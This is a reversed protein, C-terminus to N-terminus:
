ENIEEVGQTLLPFFKHNSRPFPFQDIQDVTIWRYDVADNLFVEGSRYHCHFVDMTIKFHTYSHKVRTLYETPEVLLTTEERIARVCAQEPTENLQIKGAPFEWLGGLLGDLKRQTILVRNGKHIVAAVM